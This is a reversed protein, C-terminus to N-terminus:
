PSGESTLLQLYVASLMAVFREDDIDLPSWDALIELLAYGVTASGLMAAVAEVDLHPAFTATRDAALRFSHGLLEDVVRARLEPFRDLDRTLIRFLQHHDRIFDISDQFGVELSPPEPDLRTRVEELLEEIATELMAEKSRFHRYTGGSGVSLGAAREIDNISTAEFGRNAFLEVAAKLVADRRSPM